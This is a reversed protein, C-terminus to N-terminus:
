RLPLDRGRFARALLPGTADLLGDLDDTPDFVPRWSGTEDPGPVDGDVTLVELAVPATTATEDATLALQEVTSRPRAGRRMRTPPPLDDAPARFLRPVAERRDDLTWRLPVVMKDAHRRCLVGPGEAHDLDLVEIWVLLHEADIGYCLDAPESCGPRECRRIMM